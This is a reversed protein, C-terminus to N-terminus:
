SFYEPNALVTEGRQADRGRRALHRRGRVETLRARKRKKCAGRTQQRCESFKRTEEANKLRRQKIANKKLTIDRYAMYRTNNDMRWNFM